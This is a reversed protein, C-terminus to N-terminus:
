KELSSALNVLQIFEGRYGNKDHGKGQRALTLIDQYNFDDVLYDGGRLKQGFAAVAASFKFNNSSEDAKPQISSIAIPYSVLKSAESNNDKDNKESNKSPLKYRLKLFALENIDTKPQKASPKYRLPDIQDAGDSALTIEYIATVTHGAGIDGADVKDNNFDERNLLRNEYGILRYESVLPSFEIQIKVDKAITFLTSSMEEVLVKQAERLNDIYAANGNGADALQEMLHSNYNGMGYGLTTLSIGSQKKQKILDILVQTNSTGVNMDGDSAIIVRNIGGKIFSQQALQYALQIGAGGNTSGGARLNELATNIAAKDNGATPALVMGAAGAYVVISVRDNEDLQRTLLQFSKKVLGLKLGSSMSGSVDILFVLNANPLASRDVDFGKIGINLLYSKKNWPTPAIETAVSFPRDKNDPTKYDYQFYNILEETRVMNARPLRGQNLVRRINSYAATDVDISFTSVSAESVKNISNPQISMYRETDAMVPHPNLHKVKKISMSYLPSPMPQELEHQVSLRSQDKVQSTVDRQTEHKSVNQSVRKAEHQEKHQTATMTCGSIVIFYLSLLRLHNKRLDIM